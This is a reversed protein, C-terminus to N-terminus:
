ESGGYVPLEARWGARLRAALKEEVQQHEPSGALNTNEQNCPTPCCPWTVQPDAALWYLEPSDQPRDWAPAYATGGLHLLLVWETYRPVATM